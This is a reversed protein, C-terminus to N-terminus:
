FLKTTTVELLSDEDRFFIGHLWSDVRRLNRKELFRLGLIDLHIRVIEIELGHTGCGKELFAHDGELFLISHDRREIAVVSILSLGRKELWGIEMQSYGFFGVRDRVRLTLTTCRVRYSLGWLRLFGIGIKLFYRLTKIDEKDEWIVGHM